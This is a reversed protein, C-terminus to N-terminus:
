RRGSGPMDGSPTLDIAPEDEIKEVTEVFGPPTEVKFRSGAPADNLNINSSISRSAVRTPKAAGHRHAPVDLKPDVFIEVRSYDDAMSSQPRPVCHLHLSDAPAGKEPGGLSVEFHRLIESRKQGFPLPFPGKGLQFPDRKEGDRTMQRRTVNKGTDSREVYWQGDFAYYEENHSVVGDAVSKTFHVLFRSNPEGRAFLLRGVKKQAQDVPITTIHVHIIECSFGKIAKGKVELNDLIADVRPDGSSYQSPQTAASNGTPRTTTPQSAPPSTENPQSAPPAGREQALCGGAMALWALVQFVRVM